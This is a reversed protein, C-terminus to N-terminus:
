CWESNLLTSNETVDTQALYKNFWNGEFPNRHQSSLPLSGDSQRNIKLTTVQVMNLPKTLLLRKSYGNRKIKVKM